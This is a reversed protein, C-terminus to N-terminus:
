VILMMLTTVSCMACWRGGAATGTHSRSHEYRIMDVLTFCRSKGSMGGRNKGPNMVADGGRM